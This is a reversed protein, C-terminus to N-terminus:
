PPVIHADPESAENKKAKGKELLYIKEAELIALMITHLKLNSEELKEMFLVIIAVSGITGWAMAIIAWFTFYGESFQEWKVIWVKARILKGRLLIGIMTKLGCFVACLMFREVLLFLYLTELLCRHMGELKTLISEVMSLARLQYGFSLGLFTVLLRGLSPVLQMQKECLLMFAIPLVASGVFVGMSLYMWGLSVGAKNLIVALLGMFCGFGLVVGRSVRFIQKGTADPNIYTCHIDYTCLSSVAILDSSSASTVAINKM